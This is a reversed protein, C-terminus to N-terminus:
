VSRFLMLISIRHNSYFPLFSLTSTMTGKVLKPNKVHLANDKGLVKLQTALCVIGCGFIDLKEGFIYDEEEAREVNAIWEHSPFYCELIDQYQFYDQDEKKFPKCKQSSNLMVRHFHFMRLLEEREEPWRAAAEALAAASEEEEKSIPLTPIPESSTVQTNGENATTTFFRSARWTFYGSQQSKALTTCTSPITAYCRTLGKQRQTRRWWLGDLAAQHGDFGFLRRRSGAGFCRVHFRKISHSVYYGTRRETAALRNM